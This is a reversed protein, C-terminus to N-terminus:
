PPFGEGPKVVRIYHDTFEGHMSAVAVKPMHCTVCQSKATPCVKAEHAAASGGAVTTHCALCHRNYSAVNRNLPEHPDHCAVCTLRADLTKRWCKSEELRYPQFRVVATSTAQNTSTTVDAAARHCAGCFDISDVPSLRAPNFVESAGERIAHAGGASKVAESRANGHALGPGHCAECGIGVEAHQPNFGRSTTAHVTHCSFCRRADEPSLVKGLAATLDASPEGNLGTTVDLQPREFYYSAMSQYWHDDREYVFTRGLDGAGMVWDLRQSLKDKGDSVAYEIGDASATLTYHFPPLSFALSPTEKLFNTDSAHVAARQMPTGPEAAIEDKHCKGCSQSGAFSALPSTSMTPWWRESALREQTTTEIGSGEPRQANMRIGFLLLFGLSMGFVCRVRLRGVWGTLTQIAM